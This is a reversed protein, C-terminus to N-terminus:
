SSELCRMSMLPRGDLTRIQVSALQDLPIGTTGNITVRGGPTTGWNAAVETRGNRAMVYARYGAAPPLGTLELQLATGWTRQEMSGSGVATVGTMADLPTGSATMTAPTGSATVTAPPPGSAGTPLVQPLVGSMGAVVAAATAVLKWRRLRRRDQQQHDRVADLAQPLLGPSPTLMGNRAEAPELCSLLGAVPALMALESRCEACDALHRDVADREPPELSGLVYAGLETRMCKDQETV